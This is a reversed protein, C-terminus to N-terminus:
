KMENYDDYKPLIRQLQIRLVRSTWFPFSFSPRRLIVDKVFCSMQAKERRLRAVVVFFHVFFGHHLHLTTTNSVRFRNNKHRGRQRRRWRKKLERNILWPRCGEENNVRYKTYIKHTQFWFLMLFKEKRTENILFPPKSLAVHQRGVQREEFNFLLFSKLQYGLLSFFYIIQWYNVTPNKRAKSGRRERTWGSSARRLSTWMRWAPPSIWLEECWTARRLVCVVDVHAFLTM